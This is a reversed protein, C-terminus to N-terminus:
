SLISNGLNDVWANGIGVNTNAFNNLIGNNGQTDLLITGEKQNFRWDAVVNSVATLPIRSGKRIYLETIETQTLAKNFIKLDYVEIHPSFITYIKDGIIEFISPNISGTNSSGSFVSDIYLNHM